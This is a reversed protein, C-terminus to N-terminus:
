LSLHRGVQKLRRQTAQWEPCVTGLLKYFAADHALHQLHCLEHTIVYDVCDIPAIVLLPNLTIRGESSCSGWRRSMWRLQFDHDGIGYASLREVCVEMRREFVQDARSRYWGRTLRRVDSASSGPGLTVVLYRGRLKADESMGDCVKLRYQRGLYRLTEGSVFRREPDRPRFQDFYERQRIVWRVRRRVVEEVKSDPMSWSTRVEVEGSPYAVIRTTSRDGRDVTYRIIESGVRLELGGEGAHTTM